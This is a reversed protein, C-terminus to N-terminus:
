WPTAKLGPGSPVMAKIGLGMPAIRNWYLKEAKTRREPRNGVKEEEARVRKSQCTRDNNNNNNNNNKKSNRDLHAHEM